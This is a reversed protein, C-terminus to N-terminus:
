SPRRASGSLTRAIFFPTEVSQAKPHSFTLNFDDSQIFPFPFVSLFEYDM